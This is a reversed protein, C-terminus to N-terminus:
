AFSRIIRAAAERSPKLSSWTINFMAVWPLVEAADIGIANFSARSVPRTRGPSM